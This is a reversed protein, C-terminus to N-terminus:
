HFITKSAWDLVYATAQMEDFEQATINLSDFEQCSYSNKHFDCLKGLIQFVNTKEGTFPSFGEMIDKRAKEIEIKLLEKLNEIEEFANNLYLENFLTFRAKNFESCILMALDIENVSIRAKDIEGCTLFGINNNRYIDNLLVQLSTTKNQYPNFTLFNASTTKGFKQELEYKLALIRDSYKKEAVARYKLLYDNFSLIKENFELLKNETENKLNNFNMKLQLQQEEIDNVKTSTESKFEKFLSDAKSEYDKLLNEIENRFNFLENKIENEIPIKIKEELENCIKIVDNIKKQLASLFESTTIENGFELPIPNIHLGNFLDISDIM